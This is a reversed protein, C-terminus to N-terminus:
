ITWLADCGLTFGLVASLIITCACSPRAASVSPPMIPHGNLDDHARLAVMVYSPELRLIRLSEEIFGFRYFEWDEECHFIWPTTVHSYAIDISALQGVNHETYIVRTPFNVLPMVLEDLWGHHKGAHDCSM